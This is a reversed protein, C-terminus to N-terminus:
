RGFACIPNWWSWTAFAAQTPRALLLSSCLGAMSRTFCRPFLVSPVFTLFLSRSTLHCLYLVYEAGASASIKADIDSTPAQLKALLDTQCLSLVADKADADLQVIM